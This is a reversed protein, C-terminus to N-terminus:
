SVRSQIHSAYSFHSYWQLISLQRCTFFNEEVCPTSTKRKEHMPVVMGFEDLCKCVFSETVEDQEDSIKLAVFVIYFRCTLQLECLKDISLSLTVILHM